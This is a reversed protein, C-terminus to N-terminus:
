SDTRHGAYGADAYPCCIVVGHRVDFNGASRPKISLTRHFSNNAARAV